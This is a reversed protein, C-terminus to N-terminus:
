VFIEEVVKAKFFITYPKSRVTGQNNKQGDQKLVEEEKPVSPTKLRFTRKVPNTKGPVLLKALWCACVVTM